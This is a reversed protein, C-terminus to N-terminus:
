TASTALSASRSRSPFMSDRIRLFPFEIITAMVIGVIVSGVFFVFTTVLYGPAEGLLQTLVPVSWRKVALHWLYISYSYTGIFALPRLWAAIPRGTMSGTAAFAVIGGMGLFYVGFGILSTFAEGNEFKLSPALLAIGAALWWWRREGVWRWVTPQCHSLYSLFTGFLLADIRLHTTFVRNRLVAELNVQNDFVFYTVVRLLAIGAALSIMATTAQRLTPMVTSRRLWWLFALALLIYFHEEVALSWTHIWQAPQRAAYNQVFFLHQWVQTRNPASTTGRLLFFTVILFVYYSPYIKFGRRVLFRGVHIDGHKQHERFLLGSVLFGSLVFFLDVGLWGTRHSLTIAREILANPFSEPPALHRFMVAFVAVARLVDLRSDRDIPAARVPAVQPAANTVPM